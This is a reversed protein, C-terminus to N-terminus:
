INVILEERWKSLQEEVRTSTDKVSNVDKDWIWDFYMHYYRLIVTITWGLATCPFWYSVQTAKSTTEMEPVGPEPEQFPIDDHDLTSLFPFM